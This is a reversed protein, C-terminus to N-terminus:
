DLYDLLWLLLFPIFIFFICVLIMTRKKPQLSSWWGMKHSELLRAIDPDNPFLFKAKEICEKYKAHYADGYEEDRTKQKLSIIFEILDAKTNPVPFSSIAQKVREKTNDDDWFSKHRSMQSEELLIQSITESLKRSSANAEVSEFAYGCESCVGQFSQVLAGCAPCKKVGGLKHSKSASPESKASNKLKYLKADLVMEFEDPDIDLSEAKKFLVQREKETLEGDVLAAEILNELEENYM